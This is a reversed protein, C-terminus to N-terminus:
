FYPMSLSSGKFSPIRLAYPDWETEWNGLVMKDGGVGREVDV